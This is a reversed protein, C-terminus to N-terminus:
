QVRWQYRTDSHLKLGAYEVFLTRNSAVRGSDWVVADGAARRAVQVQIRYAVQELGRAGGAAASDFRWSFRPAAVADIFTLPQGPRGYDVSLRDPVLTGATAARGGLGLLGLLGLLLLLM